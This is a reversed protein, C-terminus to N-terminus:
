QPLQALKKIWDDLETLVGHLSEVDTKYYGAKLREASLKKAAMLTHTATEIFNKTVVVKKADKSSYWSEFSLPQIGMQRLCDQLYYKHAVGFVILTREHALKEKQKKINECIRADRKRLATLGHAAMIDYRKRIIEQMEASQSESLSGIGKKFQEFLPSIESKFEEAKKYDQDNELNYDDDHWDVPVVQVGSEKAYAYVLSQEVAGHIVGDVADAHESRVETMILTPKYLYLVSIFDHLSYNPSVLMNGHISGLVYVQPNDNKVPHSSCSLIFGFLFFSLSKM